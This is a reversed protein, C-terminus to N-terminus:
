TEDSARRINSAGIVFDTTMVVRVSGSLFWVAVAFALPIYELLIAYTGLRQTVVAGTVVAAYYCFITLTYFCGQLFSKHNRDLAYDLWGFVAQRCNNSCFITACNFHKTGSFNGWQFGTMFFIPLVAPLNPASAPISATIAICVALVFFCVLENTEKHWRRRMLHTVALAGVFLLFALFRYLVDAPSDGIVAHLFLETLSASQAQAFNGRLMLGYVADSGGLFAMTM